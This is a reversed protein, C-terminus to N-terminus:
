GRHKFINAVSKEDIQVLKVGTRPTESYQDIVSEDVGKKVLQTPTDLEIPKRMDVGMLDGMMIIEEVPVGKRWRKRGVTPKADFFTVSKGTKIEHLAQEELGTLRMKIMDHARQLLKLEVGLAHGSLNHTQLDTVYDIGEYSVRQLADCHARATCHKCQTGTTCIPTPLMVDALANELQTLYNALEDMTIAWKRVTGGPAFARPQVIRFEIVDPEFGEGAQIIGSAYLIMPWHEFPEIIEHGFKADWIVLHNLAGNRVWADPIGFWGSMHHDLSVTQEVNWQGTLGHQNCYAWVDNYYERAAEFLEQTIIIGDKSMSGVIDGFPENNFLKQAVEHCARGEMKSQSLDGPLGPYIQQARYSGKCKMWQLADSPKPPQVTNM